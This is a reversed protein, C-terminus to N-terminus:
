RQLTWIINSPFKSIVIINPYEIKIIRLNNRGIKPQIIVTLNPFCTPEYYIYIYTYMDHIIKKIEVSAQSPM